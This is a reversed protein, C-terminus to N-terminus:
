ESCTLLVFFSICTECSITLIENEERDNVKKHEGSSPTLNKEGTCKVVPHVRM